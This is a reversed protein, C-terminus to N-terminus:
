EAAIVSPERELLSTQVEARMKDARRKIPPPATDLESACDLGHQRVPRAGVASLPAAALLSLAIPALWPSLLSLAMGLMMAGGLATELAHFRFLAGLRAEGFDRCQPTWGGSQGILARLVAQSQQVMLVPAMLVSWIVEVGAAALFAGPGGYVVRTRRHSLAYGTGILKPALLTGYIALLFWAGGPMPVAPWSPYLPATAEFYVPAAIEPAALTSWLIILVLWAPSLLYAVAGQLLHFRSLPHLGRAGLLRLHQLNGQCWRRDRLAYDVLTPPTEEFSGRIEPLFRVAWGARRLLAAEVFDHSMILRTGKRSSIYPLRGAEAFASLRLIANHGWYNGARGSWLALGEALLRGYVLNAFGQSRAWFTQAGIVAPFSQILGAEPDSAMARALARVAGASMLSDADLVLMADHAGGWAEVWDTLNGVKKDTNVLRRRYHVQMGPPMLARLAFYAREEDRADGRTDSLIYFTMRDSGPLRALDQAMAALNGFVSAPDEHYIPMVLAVDMAPGDAVPAPRRGLQHALGLCVTCLSLAAWFFTAGFLVVVALETPALGGEQAFWRGTWVCMALTALLAPVFVLGRWVWPWRDRRVARAPPAVDFRQPVMPRPARPPMFDASYGPNLRDLSLAM